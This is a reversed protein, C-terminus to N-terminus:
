NSLKAKRNFNYSHEYKHRGAIVEGPSLALFIKSPKQKGDTYYQKRNPIYMNGLRDLYYNEGRPTVSSCYESTGRAQLNKKKM